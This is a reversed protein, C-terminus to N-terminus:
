SRVGAGNYRAIIRENRERHSEIEDVCWNSEYNELAQHRELTEVERDKRDCEGSCYETCYDDLHKFETKCVRCDHWHELTVRTKFDWVNELAQRISEVLEKQYEADVIEGEHAGRVGSRAM